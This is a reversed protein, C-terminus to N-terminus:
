SIVLLYRARTLVFKRNSSIDSSSSNNNTTHTTHTPTLWLLEPIDSVAVVLSGLALM